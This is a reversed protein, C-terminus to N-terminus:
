TFKSKLMDHGHGNYAYSSSTCSLAKMIASFLSTVHKYTAQSVTSSRSKVSMVSVSGLDKQCAGAQMNHHRCKNTGWRAVHM